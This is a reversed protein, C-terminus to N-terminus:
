VYAIAEAYRAACDCGWACLHWGEAHSLIAWCRGCVIGLGATDANCPGSLHAIEGCGTCYLETRPASKGCKECRM